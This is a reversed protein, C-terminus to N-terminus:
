PAFPVPTANYRTPIFLQQGVFILDPNPLNNYTLLFDVTTGYKAAIQRLEEGAKVTYVHPGAPVLVTVGPLFAVDPNAKLLTDVTM